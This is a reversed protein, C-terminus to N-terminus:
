SVISQHDTVRFKNRADTFRHGDNVRVYASSWQWNEPRSCLGAKVPNNEIYEQHKVIEKESRLRRDWYGPVWIKSFEPYGRKLVIGSRGKIRKMVKSINGDPPYILIHVHDPMVVWALIICDPIKELSLIESALYDATNGSLFARNLHTKFVVHYICGPIEWRKVKTMSTCRTQPNFVSM